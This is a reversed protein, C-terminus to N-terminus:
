RGNPCTTMPAKNTVDCDGNPEYYGYPKDHSVTPAHAHSPHRHVAKVMAPNFSVVALATAAILALEHM